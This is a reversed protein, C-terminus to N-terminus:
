FGLVDEFEKLSGNYLAKEYLLSYLHERYNARFLKSVFDCEELDVFGRVKLYNYLEKVRYSVYVVGLKEEFVAVNDGVDTIGLEKLYNYLKERREHSQIDNTFVEYDRNEAGIKTLYIYLKHIDRPNLFYCIEESEPKVNNFIKEEYLGISKITYLKGYSNNESGLVIYEGTIQDFVLPKGERHFAIYRHVMAYSVIAAGGLLLLVVCLLISTSKKM